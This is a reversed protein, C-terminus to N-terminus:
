RSSGRKLFPASQRKGEREIAELRKTLKEVQEMLSKNIAHQQELLPRCAPCATTIEPVEM